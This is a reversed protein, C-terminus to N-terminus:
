ASHPCLQLSFTSIDDIHMVFYMHFVILKPTDFEIMM